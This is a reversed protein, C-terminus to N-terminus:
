SWASLRNDPKNMTLTVKFHLYHHANCTHIYELDLRLLYYYASFHRTDFFFHLRIMRPTLLTLHNSNCFILRVTQSIFSLFYSYIIWDM